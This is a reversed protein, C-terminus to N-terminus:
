FQELPEGLHAQEHLAGFPTAIEAKTAELCKWDRHSGHYVHFRAGGGVKLDGALDFEFEGYEDTKYRGAGEIEVQERAVLEDRGVM